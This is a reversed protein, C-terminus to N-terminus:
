NDISFGYKVPDNEDIVFQNFGTIFSKGTIKPIVADFDGVKTTKVIEGKFTTGIISEYIFPEGINLIGKAFLTAMKASTGTGCPSRDMQGKGFVVVNKYNSNDDLPNSYFEVLDVKNIHKLIPHQVKINENIIKRLEVGVKKLITSNKTEIEFGFQKIDVIAFFSGGFAIDFCISGYEPMDVICDKKYLFSAVNEISVERLTRNEVSAYGTVIGAPTDLKVITTPEKLEVIGTEVAITVAGISGHGCMNLYGGGDMFIIGFDTEENTSSTLISGFMDNHGRPELMVARRIYDLNNELFEKKEIMTKGPINPIGGTLIRTPEGMTHTDIANLSRILKM